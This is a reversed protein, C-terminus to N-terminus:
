QQAHRYGAAIPIPPCRYLEHARADYLTYWYPGRQRTEVLTRKLIAAEVGISEAMRQVDGPNPVDYMVVRDAQALVLPDITVPRPCCIIASAYYHRSQQLLIRANPGTRNSPFVEGGEDIWTLTRRHRPVLALGVARDLDERYTPSGPNAIWRTVTHEGRRKPEPLMTPLKPVTVTGIDDGPDADGHPDIVWKDIGPWNRFVERAWVSKGSGKRGVCLILQNLDPDIAPFPEPGAESV